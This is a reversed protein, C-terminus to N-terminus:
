SVKPHKRHWETHQQFTRAVRIVAADNGAKAVFQLGVPLNQDTFGCPVSIAPLGCLNGIGGLPDPFILDTELNMELPTASLPQSAAVLVDFSEFLDTM